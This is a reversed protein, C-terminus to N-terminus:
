KSIYLEFIRNFFISNIYSIIGIGIVVYFFLTYGWMNNFLLILIFPILNIVLIIITYPLNQISMLISNIMTNKVSNDFKAIIPFVYILSVVFVVGVTTFIFQLIMLLVNSEISKCINFDLLLVGGILLFLIWITTSIKFNMKFSKIFEKTIYTEEDKVMKMAVYYTATISAGITIIPICSVLCLLNLIIIDTIKGLIEFFNNDYGFLREM